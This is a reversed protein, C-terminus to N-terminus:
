ESVPNFPCQCRIAGCCWIGYGDPCIIRCYHGQQTGCILACFLCRLSSRINSYSSLLLKLIMFIVLFQWAYIRTWFTLHFFFTLPLWPSISISFLDCSFSPPNAHALSRKQIRCPSATQIFSILICRPRRRKSSFWPQIILSFKIRYYQFYYM